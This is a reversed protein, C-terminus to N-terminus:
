IIDGRRLEYVKRIRRVGPRTKMDLYHKDTIGEGFWGIRDQIYDPSKLPDFDLILRYKDGHFSYINPDKSMDLTLKFKGDGVYVSDVLITAKKDIDWTFSKLRPTRYDRDALEIDIRSGNLWSNAGYDRIRDLVFGPRDNPWAALYDQPSILKITGSIELVKPAVRKVIPNFEVDIVPKTGTKRWEERMITLDLAAVARDVDPSYTWDGPHKKVLYEGYRIAERRVKKAMEINGAKEYAHALMRDVWGPHDTRKGTDAEIAYHHRAKEIWYAAKEYDKIKQYYHVWGLEFYLDFTQPNNKVGEELLAISAPIYRRDSRESSDVFNYDLHWAGTTYVDLQHPDLWTIIRVLPVIADFNGQHFFDDARVWLLGAVVEKLGIMTAAIMQSPLELMLNSPKGAVTIPGRGPEFQHRKPDIDAQLTVIAVVLCVVIALLGIRKNRSILM